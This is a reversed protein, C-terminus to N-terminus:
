WQSLPWGGIGAQYIWNAMWCVWATYKGTEACLLGSFRAFNMLWLDRIFHTENTWDRTGNMVFFCHFKFFKNAGISMGFQKEFILQPFYHMRFNAVALMVTWFSTYMKPESKGMALPPLPHPSKILEQARLTTSQCAKDFPM